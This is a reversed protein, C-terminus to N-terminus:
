DGEPFIRPLPATFSNRPRAEQRAMPGGLEQGMLSPPLRARGIAAPKSNKEYSWPTYPHTTGSPLVWGQLSLGEKGERSPIKM